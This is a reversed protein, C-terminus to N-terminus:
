KTEERELWKEFASIRETGGGNLIALYHALEDISM